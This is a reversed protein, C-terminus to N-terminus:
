KFKNVTMGITQMDNILQAFRLYYEHLSEGKISTFKEFENYLKCEREQYSLETGQMLLKVRDWIDKASQYHNVLSYVDPLLGNEEITPYVLPGNEISELMMRGNKNGKIYILMRSQWSNYMTKDLTPPHNPPRPRFAKSPTAKIAGIQSLTGEAKRTKKLPATKYGMNGKKQSLKKEKGNKTEMQEIENVRKRTALRKLDNCFETIRNLVSNGVFLKHALLKRRLKKRIEQRLSSSGIEKKKDTSSKM